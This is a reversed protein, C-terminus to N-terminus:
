APPLKAPKQLDSSDRFLDMVWFQPLSLNTEAKKKKGIRERSPRIPTRQSIELIDL